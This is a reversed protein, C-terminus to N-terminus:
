SMLWVVVPCTRLRGGCALRPHEVSRRGGGFVGNWGVAARAITSNKTHKRWRARPLQVAVREASDTSTPLALSTGILM